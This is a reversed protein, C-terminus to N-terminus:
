CAAELRRKHAHPEPGSHGNETTWEGVTAVMRDVRDCYIGDMGQRLAALIYRTEQTDWAFTSLGFRHFM